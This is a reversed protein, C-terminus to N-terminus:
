CANFGSALVEQLVSVPFEEKWVEMSILQQVTIDCVYEHTVVLGISVLSEYEIQRQQGGLSACCIGPKILAQQFLFFM